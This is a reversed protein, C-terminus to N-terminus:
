SVLKGQRVLENSYIDEAEACNLTPAASLMTLRAGNAAVRSLFDVLM